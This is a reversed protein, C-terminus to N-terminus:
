SDSLLYWERLKLKIAIKSAKEIEERGVKSMLIDVASVHAVGSGSLQIPPHKFKVEHM